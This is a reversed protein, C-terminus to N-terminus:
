DGAEDKSRRPSYFDDFVKDLRQEIRSLKNNTNDVRELIVKQTAWVGGFTIILSVIASVVATILTDAINTLM